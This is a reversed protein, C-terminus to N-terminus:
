SLRQTVNRPFIAQSGEGSLGSAFVDHTSACSRVPTQSEGHSAALSIGQIRGSISCQSGQKSTVLPVTALNVTQEPTVVLAKSNGIQRCLGVPDKRTFRLLRQYCGHVFHRIISRVNGKWLVNGFTTRNPCCCISEKSIHKCGFIRMTRCAQQFNGFHRAMVRRSALPCAAQQLGTSQGCYCTEFNVLM